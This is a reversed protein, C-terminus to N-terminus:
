EVVIRKSYLHNNIKFKIIYIDSVLRNGNENCGNWKLKHIGSNLKGNFLHTIQKGSLDFIDINIKSDMTLKFDITTESSMPNPYVNIDIFNYHFYTNDLGVFIEDVGATILLYDMDKFGDEDTVILTVAYTRIDTFIHSPNPDTSTSGDHFNWEYSIIEGNPDGSGSSSFNIELPEDGVVIDSSAIAVPSNVPWGNHEINNDITINSTSGNNIDITESYYSILTNGIIEGDIVDHMYAADGATQSYNNIMSCSSGNAAYIYLGALSNDFTNKVFNDKMTINEPGATYIGKGAQNSQVRNDRITDSFSKGSGKIAIAGQKSTCNIMVNNAIVSYSGKMYIAEHDVGPVMFRVTNNIIQINEGYALIAHTEIEGITDAIITDFLNGSILINNTTFLNANNGINVDIAGRTDSISHTNFFNNNTITVNSIIGEYIYIYKVGLATIGLFDCNSININTIIGEPSVDYRGIFLRSKSSHEVKEFICNSIDIGDLIDGEPVNLNFISGYYNTFMINKLNFMDEFSSGIINLTGISDLITLSKDEGLITIPQDVNKSFGSMNYTGNKIFVTDRSGAITLGKQVTEFPETETGPNNDSAQPHNRDVFYVEAHLSYSLVIIILTILVPIVKYKNLDVTIKRQLLVSKM